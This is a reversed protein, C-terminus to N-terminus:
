AGPETWSLYQRDSLLTHRVFCDKMFGVLGQASGGSRVRLSFGDLERLLSEHEDSHEGLGPFGARGQLDEEFAFHEALSAALASMRKELEEPPGGAVDEISGMEDFILRHQADIDPLGLSYEPRWSFDFSAKVLALRRELGERLRWLVAPKDEMASSPIFLAISPVSCRAGFLKRSGYVVSEEGYAGGPGIEEVPADCYLVSASGARMAYLGSGPEGLEEGAALELASSVRAMEYLCSLSRIGALAPIAELEGVAAGARELETDLGNRLAFRRFDRAPVAVAETDRVARFREEGQDGSSLRFAGLLAGTDYRAAPGGREDLREVSGSLTLYAFGDGARGAAFPEGARFARRPSSALAALDAEPAGPFYRSLSEFAALAGWDGISPVLVSREGFSAVRGFGVSRFADARDGHSLLLDGSADGSFDSAAGHIMGGGVDVKKVDAPELYAAKARAAEEASIGAAAPSGEVGPPVVMSDIVSFSSLDAYHAYVRPGDPGAARFRFITTELPHPSLIPMVELGDVDNWRGEELDVVDFLRAFDGEGVGCLARLKATASRRVMPVAYYAIRRDSRMLSTLGVFHDDHVHTHFVGDVDCVGLGVADLSEEINPGADVLYRKGKHVVLSGMCPREPDWGDGEGIHVVSFFDRVPESRPLEYPVEYRGRPGLNLDVDVARGGAIFEYRNVGLRRLYAGGRLEVIPADIVRVDLLEETSKFSGFSFKRKMRIIEAAAAPDDPDLEEPDTVGYNGAYIYRAQAEVQDRLGILMPRAGTNMPHGPIILGQRYLMQLVPFEALNSFRGNQVPIESLLIANPGTEYSVGGRSARAIAGSKFLFKVVNEPCACLVSLGAGPIDVVSVGECLEIKTM